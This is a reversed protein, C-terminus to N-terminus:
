SWKRHYEEYVIYAAADRNKRIADIYPKMRAFDRLYASHDYEKIVNEDLIGQKMGICMLEDNNLVIRM